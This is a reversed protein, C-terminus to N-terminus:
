LSIPRGQYFDLVKRRFIFEYKAQIMSSEAATLNNKSINFETGNLLGNNFRIEANRYATTLADVQRKAAVYRRQAARADAYAQQINQRLTLRTQDARAQAQQVGIQARQLNTRAQLGNLIPVSLNFQLQKGFNDKIQNSFATPKVDFRPQAVGTVYQTPVPPTTPTAPNYIFVPAYSFDVEGTPIFSSRASSYGTFLGAGFTLRPYYAGRAVDVGFSSARVRQDAAKVEPLLSEATQYTENLDLSLEAEDDPDPLAPVDIQFATAEAGSLNLLQILQLRAIDRQNEATIVNTQDSAQQAQADLLNSEAVSGARLLKRAREVQQEASNVRLQNARVLEEALVLQLYQSAVNLALDNRAKDVDNRGAEVNLVNQKITNRLQFGSFLTVQSSVSFNNSRITQTIFENTLPDTSTGFNWSQSGNVNANPLLAARSQRLNAENVDASFQTLRVNLNNQLAYDIARQLTWGGGATAPLTGAPPQTPSTTQALAPPTLLSTGLLLRYLHKM